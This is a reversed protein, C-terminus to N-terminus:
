KHNDSQRLSVIFSNMGNASEVHIQGKHNAVISQAISLGLGFHGATRSRAKDSRYFREFLRIRESEPIEDGTNSVTFVLHHSEKKLTIQIQGQPSTYTLANDILIGALQQIQEKVGYFTLDPLIDSEMVIGKEFAISEMPLIRELLADSICFDSKELEKDPTQELRTLTLLSTVLHHMRDCEQKIYSLQRNEGFTDSLLESNSLIVAIPTKLEHSADSIFQRQKDFAETVPRVMLGSLIYSLFGFLILGIGGLIGSILLLQNNTQEESSYDILAIISGADNAQVLYRLHAITGFEKGSSLIENCYTEIEEDTYTDSLSNHISVLTDNQSYHALIFHATAIEQHRDDPEPLNDPPAPNNSEEKTASSNETTVSATQNSNTESNETTESSTNDQVKSNNAPPEKRDSDTPNPNDPKFERQMIFRLNSEAESTNKSRSWINIAFIISIFTISLLLMMTFFIRKRLLKTM